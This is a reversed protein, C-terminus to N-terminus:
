TFTRWTEGADIRVVINSASLVGKMTAWSNKSARGIWAKWDMTGEPESWLVMWVGVPSCVRFGSAELFRCCLPRWHRSITMEGVGGSEICVVSRVGLDWCDELGGRSNWSVREM